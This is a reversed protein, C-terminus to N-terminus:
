MEWGGQLYTHGSSGTRSLPVHLCSGLTAEWGRSVGRSVPALLLRLLLRPCSVRSATYVPRPAPATGARSWGVVDTVHSFAM